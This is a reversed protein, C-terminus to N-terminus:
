TSSDLQNLIKIRIRERVDAPLENQPVTSALSNRAEEIKTELMKMQAALRRSKGCIALHCWLAVREWRSLPRDFSDSTLLASQECNMFLILIVGKVIQM